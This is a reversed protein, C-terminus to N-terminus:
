PGFEPVMGVNEPAIVPKGMSLGELLSMPGGEVLSPILVYDLRQYFDRLQAEPVRGATAQVEVFPLTRLLEVLRGGKRPHALRRALRELIWDDAPGVIQVPSATRNGHAPEM